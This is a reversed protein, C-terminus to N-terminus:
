PTMEMGTDVWSKLKGPNLLGRPDFRKKQALLDPPVVGGFKGDEVVNVHPNNVRIGLARFRAIVEDIHEPSRYKLLPLATCTTHGDGGRIFELHFMVEDGFARRAEAVQQLHQGATFSVQLNTIGKDVKLAHLTTHNWAYELLTRNQATATLTDDEYTVRGGHAAALESVAAVNASTVIVAVADCGEPLYEALRTLHRPIPDLWVCINKKMIGSAMALANSFNMAGDPNGFTLIMERWPLAPALAVELELMIGNTGWAHHLMLAEPGRLEVIRPEAEVTMARLGLVNGTSGLPGYNISGIGGFGGAFFGGLSAIRFTSPICRMEWGAGTARAQDDFESIRIGAQARGAGDRVWCMQNFDSMDVVVGGRLPTCQGYNGTGGGRLTIPVRHRVCGSVLSRLEDENRPRVVAEAVKGDLLSKLIPSFWYFDRSLRALQAPETTWSLGPLQTKLEELNSRAANM